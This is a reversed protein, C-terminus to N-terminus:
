QMWRKLFIVGERLIEQFLQAGGFKSKAIAHMARKKPGEEKRRLVFITHTWYGFGNRSESLPYGEGRQCVLVQGAKAIIGAVVHIKKLATSEVPTASTLLAPKM